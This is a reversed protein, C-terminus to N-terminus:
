PQTPPIDYVVRFGLVNARRDAMLGKRASSRTEVAPSAWSGGRIAMAFSDPASGQPNTKPTLDNAYGHADFGGSTWEWLNGYMDFFGWPNAWLRGVPHAGDKDNGFWAYRALDKSNEGFSWADNRGARCVYEWEAETPLRFGFFRCFSTADRFSVNTVPYGDGWGTRTSWSPRTIGREPSGGADIYNRWSRVTVETEGMYVARDLTVKHSPREERGGLGDSETAGMLFSGPKVLRLVIGSTTHRIRGPWGNWVEGGDLIEFDADLLAKRPGPPVGAGWSLCSPFLLSLALLMYSIHRM